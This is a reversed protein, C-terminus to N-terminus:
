SELELILAQAKLQIVIHEAGGEDSVSGGGTQAEPTEEPLLSKLSPIRDCLAKVGQLVNESLMRPEAPWVTFTDRMLPWREIEGTKKKKVQDPIAESSTGILGEEILEELMKVYELRRNLVREVFVGHEDRKATKWEVRGLIDHQGPADKGDIAKGEGHEWDVYLVGSKTYSSELDTKDTFYEGKSGDGNEGSRLWELDRGGFLVIYNGVRLEDDTKSLAKLHNSMIAKESPANMGEAAYMRKLKAIAEDKNPGEYKNGRYGGHLAAWAAGMLRHDPQGDTGKVRLHWTTTKEPDEVVLYHRAPHDGDKEGKMMAKLALSKEVWMNGCAAVAQDQEMGEGVMMPVCRDMYEEKTEGERPMPM